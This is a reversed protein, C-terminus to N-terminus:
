LMAIGASTQYHRAMDSPSVLFAAFGCFLQMIAANGQRQLNSRRAGSLDTRRLPMSFTM